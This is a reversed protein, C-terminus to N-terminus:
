PCILNTNSYRGARGNIDAYRVLLDVMYEPCQGIQRKFILVCKLVNIEDQLPLWNLKQFMTSSREWTDASLIVRVARKQMRFVRTLNEQSCTSRVTSGYLMIPKIM